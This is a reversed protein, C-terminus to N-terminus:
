VVEDVVSGRYPESVEVEESAAQYEAEAPPPPPDSQEVPQSDCEPPYYETYGAYEDVTLSM